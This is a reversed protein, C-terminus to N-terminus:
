EPVESGTEKSGSHHPHLQHLRLDLFGAFRGQRQAGSDLTTQRYEVLRQRGPNRARADATKGTYVDFCRARFRVYFKGRDCVLSNDTSVTRTESNISFNM